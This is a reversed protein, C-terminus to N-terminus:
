ACKAPDISSLLTTMDEAHEEEKALIDELIRRTTPDSDGIYRIIEGYTEIAIREAVLNEKIMDLLNSCEVYETHSRQVLTLPNYDPAGNLQAIRDALRDAHQQEENAHELFEQSATESNIGSAMEYHRRYRLVCVLETALAENLLKVIVELNAPYNATVAGEEIHQRARDRIEQLNIVFEGM